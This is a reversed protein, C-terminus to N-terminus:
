VSARKNMSKLAPHDGNKVLKACKELDDFAKEQDELYIYFTARSLYGEADGPDTDIRRTYHRVM